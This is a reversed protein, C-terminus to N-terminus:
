VAQGCGSCFRDGAELPKGCHPCARPVPAAPAGALPAGCRGCFRDEAAAPRGCAPCLRSSGALAARRAAIAAEWARELGRGAGAEWEDLAQLARAASQKLHAEFVVFDEDTIKGVQHDFRLDRLAQFAAERQALLEDLAAQAASRIGAPVRARAEAAAPARRPWVAILVGLIMVVGGVWIWTMLPNVYVKFSATEGQGEFGALVVYVDEVLDPRLGVETMPQEPNKDYLLKKALLEGASRGGRSLELRASYEDYNPGRGADLGRYTLTYNRLGAGAPAVTISEGPRLNAQGEAQYFEHGIIGLAILLVGVHVVYGGYRRGNRRVLNILAPGLGEGTARQRAQVGRGYEQVVGALVFALVACGVCGAVNRNGLLWTLPVSIVGAALPIGFNRLLTEPASRRWALLPAIGMLVLLALFIPGNVRQFYPASVAIKDGLLLESLPAFLTGVLTTFAILLFIVNQALFTTERSLVADLQNESQLLPLRWILLALFGFLTAAIFAFFMPGVPSLAFAHVSQVVGSRTLFTGFLTLEWALWILVVNWVKLMGRREQIVISHIFATAPLWPILSANEVADWAWYGGWGLEIYAWQSGLLIGLSLFLWPVLTWKRILKIWANGVQGTVLAAVAFAFPVTLGIFGLYLALPHFVMWYNQLQPNLGQGDAPILPVTGAPQFVATVVEGSADRWLREFPNAAFLVVALFFAITLLLTANVYPKLGPQQHGGSRPSLWTAAVAFGCLVLTWFLLSGAQGGWLASIKYFTPLSRETHTAIYELQFQDTLLAHWLLLTALLVLGGVVYVANRGSAVLEAVNKRGGVISATCGYIALVLALALAVYGLDTM